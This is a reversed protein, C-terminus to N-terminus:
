RTEGAACEQRASPLPTTVALHVDMDRGAAELTYRFPTEYGCPCRMVWGNGNQILKM